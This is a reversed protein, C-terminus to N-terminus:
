QKEDSHKEAAISRECDQAELVVLDLLYAVMGFGHQQADTKLALTTDILNRVAQARESTNQARDDAAVASGAAGSKSKTKAVAM